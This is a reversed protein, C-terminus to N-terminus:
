TDTEAHLGIAIHRFGDPAYLALRDAGDGDAQDSGAGLGHRVFLPTSRDADTVTAAYRRALRRRLVMPSRVSGDALDRRYRAVQRLIEALPYQAALEAATAPDLGVDPDTLLAASLQREATEPETEGPGGELCAPLSPYGAEQSGTNTLRPTIAPGDIQRVLARRSREATSKSPGAIVEDDPTLESHDSLPVKQDSTRVGHDSTRVGHDSTRVGHDSLARRSREAIVNDAQAGDAIAQWHHWHVHVAANRRYTILDAAALQVLHSRVTSASDTGVVDAMEAHSLRVYGNDVHAMDLLRRATRYVPAPLDAAEIHQVIRHTTSM